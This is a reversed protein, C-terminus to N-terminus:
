LSSYGEGSIRTEDPNGRVKQPCASLGGHRVIQGFGVVGGGDFVVPGFVPDALLQKNLRCGGFLFVEATLREVVHHAATVAEPRGTHAILLLERM